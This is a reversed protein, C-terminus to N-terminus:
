VILGKTKLRSLTFVEKTTDGYPTANDDKMAEDDAGDRKWEGKGEVLCALIADM